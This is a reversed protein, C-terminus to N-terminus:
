LLKGRPDCEGCWERPSPDGGFLPIECGRCKGQKYLRDNPPGVHPLPAPDPESRRGNELLSAVQVASMGLHDAITLIRWGHEYRLERIDAKLQKFAAGEPM